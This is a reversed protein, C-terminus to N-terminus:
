ARWLRPSRLLNLEIMRNRILMHQLVDTTVRKATLAIGEPTLRNARRWDDQTMHVKDISVNLIVGLYEQTAPIGAKPHMDLKTDSSLKPSLQPMGLELLAGNIIPLDHKRIYHGTVIDAENYREVFTALIEELSQKGLLSVQMSSLDDTWCSAIATIEATPMDPAWYTLPRNEIDFDLIRLKRKTGLM